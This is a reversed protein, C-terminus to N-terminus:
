TKGTGARPTGGTYKTEGRGVQPRRRMQAIAKQMSWRKSSVDDGGGVSGGGGEIEAKRKGAGETCGGRVEQYRVGLTRRLTSARAEFASQLACLPAGGSPIAAVDHWACWGVAVEQRSSGLPVPKLRPNSPCVVGASCCCGASAKIALRLLCFSSIPWTNAQRFGTHEKTWHAVIFRLSCPSPGCVDEHRNLTHSWHLIHRTYM